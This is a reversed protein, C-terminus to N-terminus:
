GSVVSFVAAGCPARSDIPTPAGSKVRARGTPDGRAVRVLDGSKVRATEGSYAPSSGWLKLSEAFKRKVGLLCRM